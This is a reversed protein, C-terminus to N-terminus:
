AQKKAELLQELQSIKAKLDWERRSMEEQSANMEELFQRTQEDQAKLEETQEQSQKLLLVTKHNTKLGSVSGALTEGIRKVFEM